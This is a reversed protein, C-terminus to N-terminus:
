RSAPPVASRKSVAQVLAADPRLSTSRAVIEGQPSLAAIVNSHNYEGNPLRRYQVDLVAAIQRVTAEDARALTWRKGDIQRTAAIEQLQAISDKASDFSILMVRLQARKDAALSRETARLADIILPCSASCSGYFMSILVPHGRHVDLGHSQGNQDTLRANLHYISDSPDAAYASGHLSGTLLLGLLLAKM